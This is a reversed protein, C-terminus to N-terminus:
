PKGEVLQVAGRINEEQWRWIVIITKEEGEKKEIYVGMFQSDDIGAAECLADELLKIRNSADFKKYRTGAGTKRWGKTEVDAHVRVIMGYPENKKLTAIQSMYFRHADMMIGAKYSAGEDTLGRGGGRRNYYATNTSPPINQFELRIM